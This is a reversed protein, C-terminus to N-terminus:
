MVKMYGAILVVAVGLAVTLGIWLKGNERMKVAYGKSSSLAMALGFVVMALLFKTGFLAHYLPQGDHEFRTVALYNYFGSVLFGTVYIMMLPKWKKALAERLAAHAQADLVASAVPRLVSLMYATGGLLMVACLIHIWRMVLMLGLPAAAAAAEAPASEQASAAGCLLLTFLALMPTWPQISRISYM